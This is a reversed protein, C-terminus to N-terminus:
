PNTSCKIDVSSNRVYEEGGREGRNRGKGRDGKGGKNEGGKEM